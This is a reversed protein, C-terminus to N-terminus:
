SMTKKTGAGKDLTTLVTNRYRIAVDSYGNYRLMVEIPDLLNQRDVWANAVNVLFAERINSGGQNGAYTGGPMGAGLVNPNIMLAFLIESNAAASTVLKDSEKSKNDLPTIKWEEEIKGNLENVSYYTFIPKEANKTGLLSEEIDDMFLQIAAERDKTNDFESEPFKKDWFSYPIQIHWKWTAQNKYVKQLYKPIEKAIDIWGALYASLWIPESYTDRNSWSDRIMIVVSKDANKGAKRIDLDLEPDYELLVNLDEYENKGPSDPFKGSIVCKELGNENRESLRWFYANLTNLGVIADAKENFLLQIASSGFKFFDRASLEQFRRIKRSNIIEQPKPDPYPILIENGDSDFSEVKCAMLGQGLTFNRIFKLGSNLVSTSTIIKDAWQPFDNNKGWSLLKIGTLQTFDQDTKTDVTQIIKKKTEESIGSPSGNTAAFFSKGTIILPAGSKGFLIDAM